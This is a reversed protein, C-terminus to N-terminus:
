QDFGECQNQAAKGWATIGQNIAIQDAAQLNCAVNTAASVCQQYLTQNAVQTSHNSGTYAGGSFAKTCDLSGGSFGANQAAQVCAPYKGLGNASINVQFLGYSVSQKVGNTYIVDTGSPSNPNCSGNESRTICSFTAADAANWGGQSGLFAASCGGNASQSPAPPIAAPDAVQGSGDVCRGTYDASTLTSNSNELQYGGTCAVAVEDTVYGKSDTKVCSVQSERSVNGSSDTYSGGSDPTYGSPCNYIGTQTVDGPNTSRDAFSAPTQSTGASIGGPNGSNANNNLAPLTALWQNITASMPRNSVCQISNWTQYYSPVLLVKLVTQVGLFAAVIILFGIGIGRLVAKAKKLNDPDAGYTFYLFGAYAILAAALPISLGVMFNILNQSLKALSCLQCDTGSCPVLAGQPSSSVPSQPVVVQPQATPNSVVPDLTGGDTGSGGGSGFTISVNATCNGTGGPGNFSGVYTTSNTPIINKSGSPGVNGVATIAGDTANTSTWKITVSGGFNISAPSVTITCTPLPGAAWVPAPVLVFILAFSFLSRLFRM